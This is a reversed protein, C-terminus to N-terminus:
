QVSWASRAWLGDHTRVEHRLEGRQMFFALSGPGLSRDIEVNRGNLELTEGPTEGGDGLELELLLDGRNRELCLFGAADEGGGRLTRVLFNDQDAVGGVLARDIEGEELAWVAHQLAQYFQGVGPYTVYYPGQVGLNLSVHFIPMNPLCRFTLLPNVQDLGTTSFAEMSFRGDKASHRALPEIDQQEFPISGVAMYIGTKLSHVGAKQVARSAAVVAMRDQKGMFKLMKPSKMYPLPDEAGLACGVGTVGVFAEDV